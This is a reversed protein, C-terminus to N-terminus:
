GGNFMLFARKFDKFKWQSMYTKIAETESKQVTVENSNFDTVNQINIVFSGHSYVFCEPQDIIQLWEEIKRNTKFDGRKTYIVSGNKKKELYLIDKTKIRYIETKLDIIIEKSEEHYSKIADYLANYFRNENLPKSLYRFVNIRMANDLYDPFSTIIIVLIDPNNLKLKESLKLGSIGPMEIDIFAIDYTAEENYIFDGSTRTEISIETKKFEQRRELLRSIKEIMKLDDDCILINIFVM